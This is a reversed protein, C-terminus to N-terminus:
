RVAKPTKPKTSGRAPPPPPALMARLGPLDAALRAACATTDAATDALVQDTGPVAHAPDGFFARARELRAPDCGGGFAALYPRAFPPLKAVVQDYSAITADLMRDREDERGRALVGGLLVAQFESLPTEPAFARALAADLAATGAVQGYASLFLSRVAPDTAADARALLQAQLGEPPHEALIGLALGATAFDVATPDAMVRQGTAIGWAVADPDGAHALTGTLAIRLKARAEPEGDVPARGVADFMPRLRERLWAHASAELAPDGALEALNVGTLLQRLAELVTPDTEGAFAPLRALTDALSRQGGALALASMALVSRREGPSLAPLAAVLADLEPEPVTWVYYGVGDAAPHVWAVEGLDLDTPGPGVLRTVLETTGNPRGIRMRLPITWPGAGAPAAGGIQTYPQETVRYTGNPQRAVTVLPAGPTALFAELVGSVDQGSAEALAAFLDASTATGWAHKALYAALGKQFADEGIWAEVMELVAEGKAYVAFNLTEMVADGTIPVKLPQTSVRGDGGLMQAQREVAGVDDRHEPHLEAVVKRGMWEAFAENLWLDDWWALTVLDGFWLHALEHAIVHTRYEAQQPAARDTPPVVGEAAVIAGPNEMAGFTFEPIVIWDVKEYPQPSGFWEELVGLAAPLDEVVGGAMSEHGRVTWVTAPVKMGPVPTPVYPGILLAAAYAPIPKTPAFTTVTGAPGDVRSAVPANSIVQNASPSTVVLTLPIKFAPEDFCPWATRADDAEFQSAVYAAGDVDFSYLGYAQPHIAGTFGLELTYRGPKLPKAPTIKLQGHDTPASSAAKGKKGTKGLTVSRIGLEEAHLSFAALATTVELEITATGTYAPNTPDITLAVREAIPRVPDSLRIPASPALSAPAVPVDAFAPLDSWLWFM